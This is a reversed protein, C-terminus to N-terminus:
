MENGGLGARAFKTYDHVAGCEPGVHSTKKYCLGLWCWKDIDELYKPWFAFILKPGDSFRHVIFQGLRRLIKPTKFTM